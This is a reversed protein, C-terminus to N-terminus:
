VNRMASIGLHFCKSRINHSSWSWRFSSWSGLFLFSEIVLVYMFDHPDKSRPVDNENNSMNEIAKELYSLLSM